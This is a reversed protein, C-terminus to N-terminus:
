LLLCHFFRVARFRVVLQWEEEDLGWLHNINRHLALDQNQDACLQMTQYDYMRFWVKIVFVYQDAWVSDSLHFWIFNEQKEDGAKCFLAGSGFIAPRRTSVSWGLIEKSFCGSKGFSVWYLPRIDLLRYLSCHVATTGARSLKAWSSFPSLPSM